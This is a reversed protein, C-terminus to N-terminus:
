SLVIFYFPIFSTNYRYRLMVQFHTFGNFIVNISMQNMRTINLKDKDFGNWRFMFWYNNRKLDDSIVRGVIELKKILILVRFCTFIM